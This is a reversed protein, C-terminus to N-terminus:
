GTFGLDERITALIVKEDLEDIFLFPRAPIKVSRKLIFLAFPIGRKGKRAMVVSSGGKAKVTWVSYGGAKMGDICSRPTAGYQRMLTRTRAGAPIALSRANKASM